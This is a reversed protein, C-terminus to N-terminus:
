ISVGVVYGSTWCLQLSYGGSPRNVHLLDGIIYLNDCKLSRFTKMDIETLPVGGDAIVARDFGMLGTITFQVNKLLTVIKKRDSKSVSHVPTTYDIDPLLEMVTEAWGAPVIEPLVNKLIKNKHGDLTKLISKELSGMDTDPYMDMHATVTGWKLLEAVQSSSNLILPGSIGFHTFLIKGTKSFQKKGNVLFSIKMFSVDVGSLKHVWRERVSLPVITPTPDTVTHGIDRLWRFGDGTSGTEPHSVGGTSLVYSDGTIIGQSTDVGTIRGTDTLLKKVRLGCQIDVGLNKLRQVFFNTVDPARETAPFVRNRAQTVLPLGRSTFFDFTDTASFQAFASYLFDASKDYHKLFERVDFTANTINCRGGGTISLKNGLTKNKEIIRVSKGAEAAVLATMLGAAGGGIIVVDYKKNDKETTKNTAFNM